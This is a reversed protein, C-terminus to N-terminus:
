LGKLASETYVTLRGPHAGPALAKANIDKATIVDVGELNQAAKLINKHDDVVILLSKKRQYKRGRVKGKGARIRKKDKAYEVDSFVGLKELAAKVDKTKELKEFSDEVILPLKAEFVHGRNKVLEADATAAIASMTALRKEKKNIQEIYDKEVKPPHARPGGVVGPIGAVQGYLLHRKNKLRPKRAKDVNSTRDVPSYKSAFRGEATNDRGANKYTGKPQRAASEIALVARKILDVRLPTEFAKPLEVDKVKNGEISVIEAKM